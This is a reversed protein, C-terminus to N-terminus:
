NSAFTAYSAGIERLDRRRINNNTMPKGRLVQAPREKKTTKEVDMTEMAISEAYRILKSKSLVLQQHETGFRQQMQEEEMEDDGRKRTAIRNVTACFNKANGERLFVFKHESAEQQKMVVTTMHRTVNTVRSKTHSGLRIVYKPASSQEEKFVFCFSGKILLFREKPDSSIGAFGLSSRKKTGSASVAGLCVVAYGEFDSGYIGRLARVNAGQESKNTWTRSLRHFLSTGESSSSSSSTQELSSNTSGTSDDMDFTHNEPIDFLISRTCHSKMMVISYKTTNQLVCV